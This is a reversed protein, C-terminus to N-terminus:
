ARARDRSCEAVIETRAADERALTEEMRGM